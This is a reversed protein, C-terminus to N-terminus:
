DVRLILVCRIFYVLNKDMKLAAWCGQFVMFVVVVVHGYSHRLMHHTDTSACYQAADLSGYVTEM